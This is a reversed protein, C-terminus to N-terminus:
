TYSLRILHEPQWIVCPLLWSVILESGWHFVFWFHMQFKNGSSLNLNRVIFLCGVKIVLCWKLFDAANWLAQDRSVEGAKTTPRALFVPTARVLHRLFRSHFLSNILNLFVIIYNWVKMLYDVIEWFLHINFDELIGLVPSLQRLTLWMSWWSSRAELDEQQQRVHEGLLLDSHSQHFSLVFLTVGESDERVLKRSSLLWVWESM